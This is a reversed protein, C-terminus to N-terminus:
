LITLGKNSEEPKSSEKSGEKKSPTSPRGKKKKKKIKPTKKCAIELIM